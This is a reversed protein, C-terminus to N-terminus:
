EDEADPFLEEDLCSSSDSGDTCCGCACEFGYWKKLWGVGHGYDITIEEGEMLPFSNYVMMRGEEKGNGEMLEQIQIEDDGGDQKAPLEEDKADCWVVRSNPVCSHNIRSLIDFIGTGKGDLIEFGNTWIIALDISEREDRKHACLGYFEKRKEEEMGQILELLENPVEDKFDREKKEREMHPTLAVNITSPIVLLPPEYLIISGAPIDRKAFLGLGGTESALVETLPRLTRHDFSPPPTDPATITLDSRSSFSLQTIPPSTNHVEASSSDKPRCEQSLVATSSTTSSNSTDIHPTLPASVSKRDLVPSKTSSSSSEQPSTMTKLTHDLVLDASSRAIAQITRVSSAQHIHRFTTTNHLFFEPAKSRIRKVVLRSQTKREWFSAKRCYDLNFTFTIVM